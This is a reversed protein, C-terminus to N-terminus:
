CLIRWNLNPSLSHLAVLWPKSDICLDFLAYCLSEVGDNRGVSDFRTYHHSSFSDSRFTTQLPSRQTSSTSLPQETTRTSSSSSHFWRNPFRLQLPTAPASVTVMPTPSQTTRTTTAQTTPQRVPLSSRLTRNKVRVTLM